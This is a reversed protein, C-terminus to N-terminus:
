CPFGAYSTQPELASDAKSVVLSLAGKRPPNEQDFTQDSKNQGAHAVFETNNM